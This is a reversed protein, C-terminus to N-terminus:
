AVAKRRPRRGLPAPDVGDYAPGRVAPFERKFAAAARLTHFGVGGAGRCGEGAPARCSRGPCSVARVDAQLAAAIRYSDFPRLRGGGAATM